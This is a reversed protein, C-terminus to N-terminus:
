LDISYHRAVAACRLFVPRVRCRKQRAFSIVYETKQRTKKGRPFHSRKMRLVTKWSPNKMNLYNLLIFMKRRVSKATDCIYRINHM